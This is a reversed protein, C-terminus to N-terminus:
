EQLLKEVCILMENLDFPKKLFIDVEIEQGMFKVQKQGHEAEIEKGGGSVLITKLSPFENQCKLILDFGNLEPMFMDTALLDYHHTKILAWAENGDAASDVQYDEDELVTSHMERLMEDDDVVLIRKQLNGM